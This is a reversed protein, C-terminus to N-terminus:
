KGKFSNQLQKVIENRVKERESKGKPAPSSSLENLVSLGQKAYATYKELTPKMEAIFMPNMLRKELVSQVQQANKLTERLVGWVVTRNGGAVYEDWVAEWLGELMSFRKPMPFNFQYEEAFMRLFPYLAPDGSFIRLAAEWSREADYNEPNWTYDAVTMFSLKSAEPQNGTANAIFGPIVMYLKPDRWRIPGLCPLGGTGEAVPFNDGLSVKHGVIKEFTKAHEVTIVDSIVEKGTWGVLIDSHLKEKVTENYPTSKIGSYDTPVFAFRVKPYKKKMAEYLKNTFDVHAHAASTYVKADQTSIIYPIDDFFIGFFEVGIDAFQELKKVAKEIAVPNSYSINKIPSLVFSYTIFNEKAFEIEEKFEKMKEESYLVRWTDRVLPDPKPGYMFFNMKFRAMFMLMQMRQEHTWPGTYSGEIVGRIPFKPFDMIEAEWLNIGTMTREMLQKLTQLAYYTGAEDSGQIFIFPQLEMQEQPPYLGTILTYAQPSSLVEPNDAAKGLEFNELFKQAKGIAGTAVLVTLSGRVRGSESFGKYDDIERANLSFRFFDEFDRKLGAARDNFFFENVLEQKVELARGSIDAKQPYPLLCPSPMDGTPCLMALAFVFTQIDM